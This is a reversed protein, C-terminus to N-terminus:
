WFLLSLKFSTLSRLIENSKGRTTEPIEARNRNRKNKRFYRDSFEDTNASQEYVKTSGIKSHEKHHMAGLRLNPFLM